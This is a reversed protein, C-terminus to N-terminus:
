HRYSFLQSFHTKQKRNKIWIWDSCVLHIVHNWVWNTVIDRSYVAFTQHDSTCCFFNTSLILGFSWGILHALFGTLCHTDCFEVLFTPWFHRGFLDVILLWVCLRVFFDVLFTPWFLLGFFNSLFTPWLLLYFFQDFFTPCFLWGFYTSCILWGFSTASFTLWFLWVFIDGIFTVFFQDFFTPWFIGVGYFLHHM